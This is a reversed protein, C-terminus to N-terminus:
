TLGQSRFNRFDVNNSGIHIVVGDFWNDNNMRLKM